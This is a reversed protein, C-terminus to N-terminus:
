FYNGEENHPLPSPTESRADGNNGEIPVQECFESIFFVVASTWLAKSQGTAMKNFRVLKEKRKRNRSLAHVAYIAGENLSLSQAENIERGVEGQGKNRSKKGLSARSSKM